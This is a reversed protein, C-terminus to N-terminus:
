ALKAFIKCEIFLENLFVLRFLLSPVSCLYCVFLLCLGFFSLLFHVLFSFLVGIRLKSKRDVTLLWHEKTKLRRFWGIQNRWNGAYELFQCSLWTRPAKKFITSFDRIPKHYFLRHLGVFFGISFNLYEFM